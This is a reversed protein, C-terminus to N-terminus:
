LLLTRMSSNFLVSSHRRVRVTQIHANSQLTMFGGLKNGVHSSPFDHTQHDPRDGALFFRQQELYRSVAPREIQIINM